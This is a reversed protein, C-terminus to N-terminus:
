SHLSAEHQARSANMDAATQIPDIKLLVDGKKVADGERVPLDTIIGAIESQLDVFEKARIDGSASVVSTLVDIREAKSVQVVTANRNLSKVSSIVIVALIALAGCAIWIKKMRNM